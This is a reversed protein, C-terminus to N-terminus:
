EQELPLSKQRGRKLWNSLRVVDLVGVSNLLKVDDLGMLLMNRIMQSRSRDVKGAYYEILEVVNEEITFCVQTTKEKKTKMKQAEM